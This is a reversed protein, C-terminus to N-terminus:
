RKKTRPNKRKRKRKREIREQEKEKEGEKYKNIASEFVELKKDCTLTVNLLVIGAPVTYVGSSKEGDGEGNKRRAV